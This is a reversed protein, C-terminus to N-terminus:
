FHIVVEKSVLELDVINLIPCKVFAFLEELFFFSTGSCEREPVPRWSRVCFSWKYIKAQRKEHPTSTNLSCNNRCTPGLDLTLAGPDKDSSACHRLLYRVGPQLFGVCIILLM